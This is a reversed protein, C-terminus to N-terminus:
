EATETLLAGTATGNLVAGAIARTFRDLLQMAQYRARIKSYARCVAVFAIGSALVVWAAAQG